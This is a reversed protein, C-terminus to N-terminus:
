TPTLPQIRESKRITRIKNQHFNVFRLECAGSRAKKSQCNKDSRQRAAAFQAAPKLAQLRHKTRIGANAPIDIWRSHTERGTTSRENSKATTTRLSFTYFVKQLGRGHPWSDHGCRESLLREINAKRKVYRGLKYRQRFSGTSCFLKKVTSAKRSDRCTCAHCTRSM